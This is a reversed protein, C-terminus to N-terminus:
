MYCGAPTRGFSEDRLRPARPVAGAPAPATRWPSHARARGPFFYEPVAAAARAWACASRSLAPEAARFQVAEPRRELPAELLLPLETPAPECHAAPAPARAHAPMEEGEAARAERASGPSSRPRFM